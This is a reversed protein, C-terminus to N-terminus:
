PADEGGARLSLTLRAAAGGSGTCALHILGDEETIRLEEAALIETGSDPTLMADAESFLEMVMGDYWYIVTRYETGGIDERLLLADSGAFKGVAVGGARDYHRIKEALYSLCTRETYHSSTDAEIGRYAGAGCLLVLLALGVFGGFLAAAFATDVLHRHKM